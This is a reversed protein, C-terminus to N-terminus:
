RKMESDTSSVDTSAYSLRPNYIPQATSSNSSKSNSNLKDTKQNSSTDDDNIVSKTYQELDAIFSHKLLQTASPRNKPDRTLCLKVFQKAEDTLHNPVIPYSETSGIHYLAQFSSEFNCESWPAKAQAMEIVVCGLSWIDVKYNYKGSMVEPAVWLPTYSFGASPNDKESIDQVIKASGFDCLKIEGKSSVLINKGKIDRHLINRSHCYELALLLQKIYKRIVTEILM